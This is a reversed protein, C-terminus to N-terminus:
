GLRFAEVCHLKDVVKLRAALLGTVDWIDIGDHVGDNALMAGAIHNDQHRVAAEAADM